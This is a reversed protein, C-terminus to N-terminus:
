CRRTSATQGDVVASLASQYCRSCRVLVLTPVAELGGALLFPFDDPAFGDDELLELRFLACVRVGPDLWEDEHLVTVLAGARNSGQGGLEEVLNLVGRTDGLDLYFLLQDLVAEAM